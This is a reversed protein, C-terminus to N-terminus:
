LVFLQMHARPSASFSKHTNTKGDKMVKNAEDRTQLEATSKKRGVVSLFSGKEKQQSKRNKHYTSANM